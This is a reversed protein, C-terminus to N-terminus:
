ILFSTVLLGVGSARAAYVLAVAEISWAKGVSARLSM